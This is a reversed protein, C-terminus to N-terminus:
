CDSMRVLMRHLRKANKEGNKKHEYGMQLVSFVSCPRKSVIWNLGEDMVAPSLFYCLNTEATRCYIINVLVFYVARDGEWGDYAQEVAATSAEEAAAMAAGVGEVMAM